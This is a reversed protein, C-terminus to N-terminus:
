FIGLKIHLFKKPNTRFDNIMLRLDGTAGTLNDYLAPDSFLKGATGQNSNLKASADRVNASADRVNQYLTDDTALKGLTGKGARVDSLLSDGNQAMGSIHNYLAPDYVVKGLTGKQDHVATMADDVKGVVSDAKNYLDDSTVLKGFSGQGQKISAVMDNVNAVATNLNNYLAPDKVLKGLSGNGQNISEITDRLDSALVNMTKMLDGSQAIVENMGNAVQAPLVGNNPIVEGTIGRNITVFRDGLLGQTALSAASDTRIENQFKKDIELVVTVSHARDEPRTTLSMSQVNGVALGDLDVPAGSQLGAVEPMYTILRYKATFSSGGTVYFIAVAMLFLGVLAFVGVRLDTWSLQKQQAM